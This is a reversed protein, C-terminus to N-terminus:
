SDNNVFIQQREIRGSCLSTSLFLVIPKLIRASVSLQSFGLSPNDEYHMIYSLCAMGFHLLHVYQLEPAKLKFLFIGGVIKYIGLLGSYGRVETTFPSFPFFVVFTFMLLQRWVVGAIPTWTHYILSVCIVRVFESFGCCWVSCIFFVHICYVTQTM